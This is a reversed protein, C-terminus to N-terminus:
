SPAETPIETPQPPTTTPADTDSAESPDSTEPTERTIIIEVRRNLARNADNTNAVEPDFKGRGMVTFRRPDIDASDILYRAVRAARATSLEWNSPFAETDVPYDDTHGIVQVAYPTQEIVKALRDLFERVQPRLRAEGLEFFMPGQVSVKVSEDDLLVIEVNDVRADRVAAQSREFVNVRMLPEFSPYEMLPELSPFPVPQQEIRTRVASEMEREEQQRQAAERQREAAEVLRQNERMQLTVLVAFLVFMVMMLDGWPVSWRSSELGGVESTPEPDDRLWARPGGPMPEAPPPPSDAEANTAPPASQATETASPETALPDGASAERAEDAAAPLTERARDADSSEPSATGPDSRESASRATSAANGAATEHQEASRNNPHTEAMRVM